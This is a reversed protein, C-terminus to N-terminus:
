FFSFLVFFLVKISMLFHTVAQFSSPLRLQLGAMCLPSSVPDGWPSLPVRPRLAARVGRCGGPVDCGGGWLSVMTPVPLVRQWRQQPQPVDDSRPM